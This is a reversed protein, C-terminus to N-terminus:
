VQWTFSRGHGETEAIKMPRWSGNLCADLHLDPDHMNNYLHYFDRKRGLEQLRETWELKAEASFQNAVHTHFICLMADESVESAVGEILKLADGEILRVPHRKLCAAAKALHQRRKRHEPWILANLWRLDAESALDNVHLDIGVRSAVPPSSPLLFPKKDGVLESELHLEASAGGYVELTGYSYSYRDWLLQLGASTGVEILALPKGSQRYIHCFAPYLYACRNVENTQVRKTELLTILENRYAACFAQFPGIALAPEGPNSVLSPYFDRLPHDIGRLLLDHVAGFLMNPQPQGERAHAALELLEADKAIQLSLAEYLPSSDRFYREAYLHFLESLAQM